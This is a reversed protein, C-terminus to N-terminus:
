SNGTFSSEEENPGIKNATRQLWDMSLATRRLWGLADNDLAAL